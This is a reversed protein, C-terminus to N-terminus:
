VEYQNEIYLKIQLPNFFTFNIKIKMDELMQNM